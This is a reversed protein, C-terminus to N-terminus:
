SKRNEMLGIDIQVAEHEAIKQSVIKPISIGHDSLPVMFNAQVQMEDPKIHLTGKIIREKKIGHIELMGKARLTYTGPKLFPIDEIIKGTFTANPFKRYEMYNELFHTRQMDSNFGVFSQIPITFAFSGSVTDIVGRLQNSQANILELPANSEFVVSGKEGQWRSSQGSLSLAFSSFLCCALILRIAFM